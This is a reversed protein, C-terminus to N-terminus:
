FRGFRFSLVAMDVRGHVRLTNSPVACGHMSVLKGNMTWPRLIVRSSFLEGTGHFTNMVPLRAIKTPLREQIIFPQGERLRDGIWKQWTELPLGHGMLVGYSRASSTNAGCVKLVLRDRENESLHSHLVSLDRIEIGGVNCPFSNRSLVLHSDPLIEKLFQYKERGLTKEFDKSYMRFISFWAKNGFHAFEPVLRVLGRRATVVLDVLKGATEFIPFQRWVTNIPENNFFVGRNGVELDQLNDTTAMAVPYGLQTLHEVLWRTESIYCKSWDHSVVFLLMGNKTLEDFCWRWREQNVDYARDLHVLEPFGGPMEDIESAFVRGEVAYHLDPRDITFHSCPPDLYLDPLRPDSSLNVGALIAEQVDRNSRTLDSCAIEFCRLADLVDELYDTDCEIPELPIRMWSIRSGTPLSAAFDAHAIAAALDPGENLRKLVEHTGKPIEIRTPSFEKKKPLGWPYEGKALQDEFKKKFCARLQDACSRLRSESRVRIIAVGWQVGQSWSPMSDGRSRTKMTFCKTGDEDFLAVAALSAVGGEFYRRADTGSEFVLYDQGREEEPIPAPRMVEGPEDRFSLLSPIVERIKEERVERLKAIVRESSSNGSVTFIVRPVVFLKEVVSIQLV